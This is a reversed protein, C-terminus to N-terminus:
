RRNRKWAYIWIAADRMGGETLIKERTELNDIISGKTIIIKDDWKQEAGSKVEPSVDKEKKEM